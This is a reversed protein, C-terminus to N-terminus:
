RQKRVMNWWTKERWVRFYINKGEVKFHWSKAGKSKIYMMCKESRAKFLSSGSALQWKNTPEHYWLYIEDGTHDPRDRKVGCHCLDKVKWLGYTSQKKNVLTRELSLLCWFMFPIRLDQDASRSKPCFILEWCYFIIATINNFSKLGPFIQRSLQRISYVITVLSNVSFISDCVIVCTTWLVKSM